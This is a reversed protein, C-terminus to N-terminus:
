GMVPEDPLENSRVQDPAYPFRQVLLTEVEAVALNLGTKFDGAQFAGRMRSIINQWHDPLVNNLGRDAVIEIAREALLLYILVGNNHETDWVRLKGFMTVARQRIITPLPAKRLLYSLPLSAEVFIRIEGTHRQESDSVRAALQQLLDQPIVRQAASEDLWRHKLVRRLRGSM